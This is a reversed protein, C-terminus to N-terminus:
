VDAEWEHQSILTRVQVCFQVFRGVVCVSCTTRNQVVSGVDVGQAGQCNEQDHSKMEADRRNGPAVDPDIDEEDNGAKEDSRQETLFM